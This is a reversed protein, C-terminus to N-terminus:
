ERYFVKLDSDLETEVWMPWKNHARYAPEVQKNLHKLWRIIGPDMSGDDNNSPADRSKVSSLESTDGDVSSVGSMAMSVQDSKSTIRTMIQKLAIWHTALLVFVQKDLDIVQRFQEQPLQMWWAYHRTMATYAEMPSVLLAEAMQLVLAHYATAMEDGVCLPALNKVAELATESWQRDIATMPEIVPRLLETEENGLLNRFMIRAGKLYMQIAVVIIGRIFTMYEAMGDDLAVSQFTLAFCTAMLANGEEFMPTGPASSSGSTDWSQQQPSAQESSGSRRRRNSRKEGSSAPPSVSGSNSRDQQGANPWKPVAALTRKIARIAKLRHEMAATVLSSDQQMLDSAAMGLLAHMLYDYNHSLCPIEHTWLSENGLPHHPSCHMLFHQFFRMDQMSFLPIQHQPQHNVLPAMPYECQLGTKQCHGCAPRTEQCKIRRRKCNFCGRRSKTHGRRELRRNSASSAHSDLASNRGKNTSSGNSALVLSSSPITGTSSPTTVALSGPTINHGLSSADAPSSSLTRMFQTSTAVSPPLPSLSGSSSMDRLNVAAGGGGGLMAAANGTTHSSLQYASQHHAFPEQGTETVISPVTASPTATTATPANQHGTRPQQHHIQHQHQQQLHQHSPHTMVGGGIIDNQPQMFAGYFDFDPPPLTEAGAEPEDFMLQGYDMDIM